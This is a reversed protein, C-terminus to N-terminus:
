RSILYKPNGGFTRVEDLPVILRKKKDIAKAVWAKARELSLSNPTELRFEGPFKDPSLLSADSQVYVCYRKM